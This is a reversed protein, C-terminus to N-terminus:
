LKIPLYFIFTSGEGYKSEVTIRGGHLEVLRKTIALGLGTGGYHKTIGSDLQEFEKFLKGKDEEKIGIGTDSVSIKVMDKEKESKITITGGEPKSFKVANSLLNFMIQKFRQPDVDFHTLEPDLEQKLKVKNKIAKEKILSLTENMIEPLSVKEIVLEIKGAEVKSLDLIDNILNLLFKSSTIVNDLYHLQKKDLATMASDQLLESFGIISNLPTRLEHSMNALFESKTKSAYALRDNELRIAESTKRATIDTSVVTVATVLETEHDKVPSLTMLFWRGKNEYEQQQSTGNIFVHDVVQVFRNVDEATHCDGYSLGMYNEIGLRKMHNPNMFLYRHEKDVMYISDDTSEVLSRYNEESKELESTREKVMEELHDRHRRLENEILLREERSRELAELMSNISGGLNSLEDTEKDNRVRGSFAANTGIKNVDTNLAALRSLVLKELLMSFLVTFIIGIVLLSYFLYKVSEKGQNYIPRPLSVELLHAPNGYVDNLLTYGSISDESTARVIIPESFSGEAKLDAPIDPEDLNHMKLSLHTIESLRVIENEDMYRGFILTGRVPGEGKSTLIPYSAVLLPKEPLLVLGKLNQETNKQILISNNTYFLSLLSEPIPTESSNELDYGKSFVIEGTSNFYLILNIRLGDLTEDTPNSEIYEPNNDEIFQYTDDWWAWDRTMTGLQNIDDSFADNARQVNKSTDEQEVQIFGNMLFTSSVIYLFALLCIMTIGTFLLTKKRLKMPHGKM